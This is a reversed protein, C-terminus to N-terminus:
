KNKKFVLVPLYAQVKGSLIKSERFVCYFFYLCLLWTVSVISAAPYSFSDFYLDLQFLRYQIVRPVPRRRMSAGFYVYVRVRSHVLFGEVFSNLEQAILLRWRRKESISILMQKNPLM